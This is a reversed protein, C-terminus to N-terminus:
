LFFYDRVNVMKLHSKLNVLLIGGTTIPGGKIWPAIGEGRRGGWKVITNYKLTYELFNPSWSQYFCGVPVLVLKYMNLWNFYSAQTTHRYSLNKM